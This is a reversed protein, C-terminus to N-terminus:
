LISKGVNGLRDNQHLKVMKGKDLFPGGAFSHICKERNGLYKYFSTCFLITRQRGVFLLICMCPFNAYQDEDLRHPSLLSPSPAPTTTFPWSPFLNEFSISSSPLQTCTSVKNNVINPWTKRSAGLPLQDGRPEPINAWSFGDGNLNCHLPDSCGVAAAEAASVARMSAPSEATTTSTTTTISGDANETRTTTTVTTSTQAAGPAVSVNAQAAASTTNTEQLIQTQAHTLQLEKSGALQQQLRMANLQRLEVRKAALMEGDDVVRIETLCVLLTAVLASFCDVYRRKDGYVVTM